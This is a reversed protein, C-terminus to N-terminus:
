YTAALAKIIDAVRRMDLGGSLISELVKPLGKMNDDDSDAVSETLRAVLNEHSERILRNKTWGEGTAVSFMTVGFRRVDDKRHKSNNGVQASGLDCLKAAVVVDDEMVLMINEPKVDKHQVNHKHMDALTSSVDELAKFMIAPSLEGEKALDELTGWPMLDQIMCMYFPVPGADQLQEAVVDPANDRELVFVSAYTSVVNTIGAEILRKSIFWERLGTPAQTMRILKMAVRVKSKRDEALFVFGATGKAIFKIIEIDELPGSATMLYERFETAEESYDTFALDESTISYKVIQEQNMAAVGFKEKKLHQKAPKPVGAAIADETEKRVKPSAPESPAITGGHPSDPSSSKVGYHTEKSKSPAGVTRAATDEKQGKEVDLVEELRQVWTMDRWSEGREKVAKAATARIQHNKNLLAEKAEEERANDELKFLQQMDADGSIYDVFEDFDMDGSLDQDCSQFLATAEDEEWASNLIKLMAYFEEFTLKGDGNIDYRHYVEKLKEKEDGQAM